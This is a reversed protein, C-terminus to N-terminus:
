KRKKRQKEWELHSQRLADRDKKTYKAHADDLIKLHADQVIFLDGPYFVTIPGAERLEFFVKDEEEPTIQIIPM